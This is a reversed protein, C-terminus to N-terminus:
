LTTPTLSTVNITYGLEKIYKINEDTLTAQGLMHCFTKSSDCHPYVKDQGYISKIIVHIEPKNAFDTM